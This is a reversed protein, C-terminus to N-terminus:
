TNITTVKDPGVLRGVEEISTGANELRALFAHRLSQFSKGKIAFSQLIRGYYVSLKSRKTPDLIEQRQGPFCYISNNKLFLMELLVLTLDHDGILPHDVPLAVHGEAKHAQVVIEGPCINSWEICCVDGLSMGTWYSLVTAFKWFGVTHLVIHRYERETMAVRATREKQSTTLGRLHVKTLLSQNGIIYGNAACFKFFSRLSSLRMDRTTLKTVGQDNVFADLHDHKLFIVPWAAAGLQDIFQALVTRQTYVTNPTSDAQRWKTWGELAELCTIRRAAHLCAQDEPTLNASSLDPDIM